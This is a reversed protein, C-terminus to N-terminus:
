RGGDLSEFVTFNVGPYEGRTLGPRTPRTYGTPIGPGVARGGQGHMPVIPIEVGFAPRLRLPAVVTVLGATVKAENGSAADDLEDRCKKAAGRHRPLRRRSEITHPAGRDLPTQLEADERRRQGPNGRRARISGTQRAIRAFPLPYDARERGSPVRTGDAGAHTPLASGPKSPEPRRTSLVRQALAM